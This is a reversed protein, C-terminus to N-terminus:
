FWLRVVRGRSSIVAAVTFAILGASMLFETSTLPSPKEPIALLERSPKLNDITLDNLANTSGGTVGAKDTSPALKPQTDAPLRSSGFPVTFLEERFSNSAFVAAAKDSPQDVKNLTNEMMTSM